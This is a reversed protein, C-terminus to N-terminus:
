QKMVMQAKILQGDGTYLLLNYLGAPYQAINMTTANNSQQMLKGDISYLMANVPVPSQIFVTETAPNPYVHIDQESVQAVGTLSLLPYASSVSQCGSSDTVRVEYSGTAVPTYTHTTAGYIAILDKYWQYTVFTDAVSLTAGSHIIVPNPLPLVDVSVSMSAASCAPAMIICSYNGPTTADYTSSTAGPINAGNMQWQFGVGTSPVDLGLLASGGWCFVTDSLPLVLPSTLEYVNIATASTDSCGSPGQVVATYVGPTAAVYSANTAGTLPAGSSYWQYTDGAASAVNLVVSGGTCFVTGAAAMINADPIPMATLTVSPNVTCPISNTIQVSYNGGASTVYTNGTAGSIAGAADYWQYTLGYSPDAQITATSGTCFATGPALTLTTSPIPLLTVTIAPSSTATCGSADTVAVAYDGAAGAYLGSTNAGAIASGNHIWQYSLGSGTNATLLVSDNACFTTASLATAMATVTTATVHIAPSTASCALGNTVKVSYNGPTTAEYYANTAGSITGGGSYWQYSLGSGTLAEFLVFSGSCLVTDGITTVTTAPLPEATVSIASSTDACGAASTVSVSYSGTATASYSSSTAGAILTGSNYWKYTYSGSGTSLTVSLGLCFSTPGGASIPAAPVPNVTVSTGTSVALCGASSTVAVSYTGSSTVVYSANTAASITGPDYWQYTNGAAVPVSLTVNGGACFTTAGSATVTASPLPNVTVTVPASTDACSAAGGTIVATYNGATSATYSSTTAGPVSTGSHYWQYSYGAASLVNLVVDDGSCFTTTTAPTIVSVPVSDIAFVHSAYVTNCSNTVTYLVTDQGAATAHFSVGGGALSLSGHTVGWSGGTATDTFTTTSGVCVASPGVINGAHPQPNVTIPFTDIRHSCASYTVSYYATDLGATVGTVVDSTITAHSNTISWTGGIATDTLTTTATECVTAPAFHTGTTVPPTVTVTVQATDPCSGATTGTVTYTSTSTATFSVSSGTSASLGTAPSWSLTDAGSATLTVTTGSCVSYASASATVALPTAATVNFYFDLAQGYDTSCPPSYSSSGSSEGLFIRMSLNIGTVASSPVTFSFSGSTVHAAMTVTSACQESTEFTGNNNWDIWL